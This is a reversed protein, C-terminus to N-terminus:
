LYKLAFEYLVMMLTSKPIMQLLTMTLGFYLHTFPEKCVAVLTQQLTKQNIQQRIRLTLLPYSIFYACTKSTASCLAYDWSTQANFKSKLIDYLTFNIIGNVSNLYGFLLGKNFGMWGSKKYISCAHHFISRNEMSTSQVSKLTWLSNTITLSFLSSPITAVLYKLNENEIHLFNNQKCYFNIPFYITYTLAYAVASIPLSRYFRAIGGERYLNKITSRVTTRDNIQNLKLSDLPYLLVTAFISSFFGASMQRIYQNGMLSVKDNLINESMTTNTNSITQLNIKM